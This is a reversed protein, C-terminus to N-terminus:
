RIFRIEDGVLTGKADPVEIIYKAPKSPYHVRWWNLPGAKACRKVSVVMFDKNVWIVDLPQPVFMMHIGADIISEYPCTLVCGENRSIKKFMLGRLRQFFSICEWANKALIKNSSKNKIIM